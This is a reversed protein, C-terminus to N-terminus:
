ESSQKRLMIYTAFGWSLAAMTGSLIRWTTANKHVTVRFPQKPWGARGVGTVSQNVALVCYELGASKINRAPIITEYASAEKKRLRLIKWDKTGVTRYLVTAIRLNQAGYIHAIIKLPHNEEADTIPFHIVIPSNSKTDEGNLNNGSTLKDLAPFGEPKGDHDMYGDFDEPKVPDMDRIDPIGDHDYDGASKLHFYYRLGIAASVVGDKEDGTGRQDLFDESLSYRFDFDLLLGLNRNVQFEVGGGAKVFPAMGQQKSNNDNSNYLTTGDYKANWWAAGGGIVAYPNIKSLPYMNLIFNLELPAYVARFLTPDEIVPITGSIKDKTALETYSFDGAITLYPIPSYSLEFMGLPNLKPKYWDGDLQNIGAKIGIGLGGNSAQAPIHMM